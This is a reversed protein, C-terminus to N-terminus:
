KIGANIRVYKSLLYGTLKTWGMKAKVYTIVGIKAITITESFIGENLHNHIKIM